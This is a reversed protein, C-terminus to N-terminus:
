FTHHLVHNHEVNARMALPTTAKGRNLFVATVASDQSSM